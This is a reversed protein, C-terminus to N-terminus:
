YFSIGRCSYFASEKWNYMTCDCLYVEYQAIFCTYKFKLLKFFYLSYKRVVISNLQSDILFFIKLIRLMQINFLVSRFLEHVFSTFHYIIFIRLQIIIFIYYILTCFCIFEKCPFKQFLVFNYLLCQRIELNIKFLWFLWSLTISAYLKFLLNISYIGLGSICKCNYPMQNKIIFRFLPPFFLRKM